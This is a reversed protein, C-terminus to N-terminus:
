IKKNGKLISKLHDYQNYIPLTIKNYIENKIKFDDVEELFEKGLSAIQKEFNSYAFNYLAIDLKNKERLRDILDQNFDVQDLKSATNRKLYYANNWGFVRKLLIVSEDFREVIGVFDFDQILHKQAIELMKENCKGIPTRNIFLDNYDTEKGVIFRLMGNDLEMLNSQFFFEEPSANRALGHYYSSPDFRSYKYLSLLRSIPERLFTIYTYPHPLFNHVGYCFHGMFYRDEMTKSLLLEKGSKPPSSNLNLKQKTLNLTRQFINSGYRRRIMRQVTMGATKQIHLFIIFKQSSKEIIM